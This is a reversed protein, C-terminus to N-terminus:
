GQPQDTRIRGGHVGKGGASPAYAPSPQLSRAEAERQGSRSCLQGFPLGTSPGSPNRLGDNGDDQAPQPRPGPFNRRRVCAGVFHAGGRDVAGRGARRSRNQPPTGLKSHAGAAVIITDHYLLEVKL